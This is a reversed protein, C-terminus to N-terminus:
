RTRRRQLGLLGASAILILSLTGPEPVGAVDSSSFKNGNWANFDAVDVSGDGTADGSCWEAVNTFKNGNWINFDGVDVVGDLNFDGVLYPNGSANNVAGAEALWADRDAIDVLGDATLDYTM